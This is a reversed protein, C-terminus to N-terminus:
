YYSWNIRVILLSISCNKNTKSRSDAGTAVVVDGPHDEMPEEARDEESWQSVVSQLPDLKHLQTPQHRDVEIQDAGLAQM